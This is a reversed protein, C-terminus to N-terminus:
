WVNLARRVAVIQGIHYAAHDAVLFIAEADSRRRPEFKLDRQLVSKLIGNRNHSQNIKLARQIPDRHDHVNAGTAYKEVSLVKGGLETYRAVFTDGLRTGIANNPAFVIANM